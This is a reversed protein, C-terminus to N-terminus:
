STEVTVKFPLGTVADTTYVLLSAALTPTEVVPEKVRLADPTATIVEVIALLEVTEALEVTVTLVEPTEVSSTLIVGDSSVNM